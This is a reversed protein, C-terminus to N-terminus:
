LVGLLVADAELLTTDSYAGLFRSTMELDKLRLRVRIGKQYKEGDQEPRLCVCHFKGGFDVYLDNEVIQFITGAVVKDRAPGLQFLPSQRLLSAFNEKDGAAAKGTATMQSVAPKKEDRAASVGPEPEGSAAASFLCVANRSPPRFSRLWRGSYRCCPAAM